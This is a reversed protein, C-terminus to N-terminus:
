VRSVGLPSPDKHKRQPSFARSTRRNPWTTDQLADLLPFLPQIRPLFKSTFKTPNRFSPLACSDVMYFFALALPVIPVVSVSLGPSRPSRFVGTNRPGLSHLIHTSYLLVLLAYSTSQPSKNSSLPYRTARRPPNDIYQVRLTQSVPTMSYHFKGYSPRCRRIYMM